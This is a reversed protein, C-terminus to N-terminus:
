HAKEIPAQNIGLMKADFPSPDLIVWGFASQRGNKHHIRTARFSHYFVVRPGYRSDRADSSSGQDNVPLPTRYSEDRAMMAWAIRAIKNTLALAAIKKSRREILRVPWPHRM